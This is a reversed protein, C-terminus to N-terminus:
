STVMFAMFVTILMIHSFLCSYFFLCSVHPYNAFNANLLLINCLNYAV